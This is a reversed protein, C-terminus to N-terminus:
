LKRLNYITLIALLISIALPVLIFVFGWDDPKFGLWQYDIFKMENKRIKFIVIIPLLCASFITVVKPIFGRYLAIWPFDIKENSSNLYIFNRLHLWQYLQISLLIVIGWIGLIESPFKAGFIEFSQRAQEEDRKLLDSVQDITLSDLNKTLASLEPFTDNFKGPRWRADIKDHNAILKQVPFELEDKIEGAIELECRMLSFDVEIVNKCYQLLTLYEGKLVGSPSFLISPYIKARLKFQATNNSTKFRIQFPYQIDANRNKTKLKLKAWGIKKLEGKTLATTKSKEIYGTPSLGKLQYSENFFNPIALRNLNSLGNWFSIFYGITTEKSDSEPSTRIESRNDYIYFDPYSWDLPAHFTLKPNTDNENEYIDILLIDNPNIKTVDVLEQAASQNIEKEITKWENTLLQINSIDEKAKEIERSGTVSIAALLGISVVIIAFQISRLHKASEILKDSM